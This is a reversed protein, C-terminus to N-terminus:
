PLKGKILKIEEWIEKIDAEMGEKAEKVQKLVFETLLNVQKDDFKITFQVGKNLFDM